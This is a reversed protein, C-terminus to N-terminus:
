QKKSSDDKPKDGEKPKEESSAQQKDQLAAIIKALADIDITGKANKVNSYFAKATEKMVEKIELQIQTDALNRLAKKEALYDPNDIWGNMRDICLKYMADRYFQLGQSRYLLPAIETAVARAYQTALEGSIKQGTKSEGEIAGSLGYAELGEVNVGLYM